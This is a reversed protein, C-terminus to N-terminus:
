MKRAIAYSIFPERHDDDWSLDLFLDGPEFILAPCPRRAVFSHILSTVSEPLSNHRSVACHCNKESAAIAAEAEAVSDFKTPKFFDLVFDEQDDQLKETPIWPCAMRKGIVKLDLTAGEDCYNEPFPESIECAVTGGTKETEVFAFVDEWVPVFECNDIMNEELREALGELHGDENLSLVLQRKTTRQVCDADAQVAHFILQYMGTLDQVPPLNQQFCSPDWGKYYETYFDYFAIGKAQKQLIDKRVGRLQDKEYKAEAKVREEEKLRRNEAVLKKEEEAPLCSKCEGNGVRFGGGNAAGNNKAKTCLLMWQDGSFEEKPKPLGCKVCPHVKVVAEAKKKEEMKQNNAKKRDEMKQETCSKCVAQDGKKRATRSFGDVRKDKKCESCQLSLSHNSEARQKKHPPHMIHVSQYTPQIERCPGQLRIIESAFIFTSSGKSRILKNHSHLFHTEM